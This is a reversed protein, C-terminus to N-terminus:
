PAAAAGAGATGISMKSIKSVLSQEKTKQVLLRNFTVRVYDSVESDLQKLANMDQDTLTELRKKFEELKTVITRTEDETFLKKNKTVQDVCSNILKQIHNKYVIPAYVTEPKKTFFLTAIVPNKEEYFEYSDTYPQECSSYCGLIKGYTIEFDDRIDWSEVPKANLTLTISPSILNYDITYEHIKSGEMQYKALACYTKADMPSMVFAVRVSPPNRQKTFVYKTFPGQKEDFTCSNDSWPKFISGFSVGGEQILIKKSDTDTASAAAGSAGSSDLSQKFRNNTKNNAQKEGEEISTQIIRGVVSANQDVITSSRYLDVFGTIQACQPDAANKYCYMNAFQAFNSWNLQTSNENEGYIQRLVRVAREYRKKGNFTELDLITPKTGIKFWHTEDDYTIDIGSALAEFLGKKECVKIIAGGRQRRTYRRHNTKHRRNTKRDRARHVQKKSRKVRKVRRTAM